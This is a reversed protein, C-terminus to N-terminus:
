RCRVGSAARVRHREVEARRTASVRLEVGKGAAREELGGAGSEFLVSGIADAVPPERVVLAFLRESM